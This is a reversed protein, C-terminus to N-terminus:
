FVLPRPDPTFTKYLRIDEPLVSERDSIITARLFVVLETVESSRINQSVAQGLLPIDMVGPLGERSNESSERMLGGMVVTEGSAMSLLSDMERVEIVPIQSSVNIGSNSTSNIQAITLAVGPDPVFSSIRTISPRLSMNIRRSVADISPQVNMVLGVPVSKIESDITVTDGQGAITSQERTM